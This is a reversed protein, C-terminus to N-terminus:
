RIYARADDETRVQQNGTLTGPIDIHLGVIQNLAYFHDRWRYRDLLLQHEDLFVRHQLQAAADLKAYDFRTKAAQMERRVRRADAALAAESTDDWRDDGAKSGFETALQPSAALNRQYVSELFAAFRQSETDSANTAVNNAAANSAAANNAAINNAAGASAAGTCAIALVGARLAISAWRTRGAMRGAM